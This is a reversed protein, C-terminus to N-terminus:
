RRAVTPTKALRRVHACLSVSPNRVLRSGRDDTVRFKSGVRTVSWPEGDGHLVVREQTLELTVNRTYNRQERQRHRDQAWVRLKQTLQTCLPPTDVETPWNKALQRPRLRDSEAWFDVANAVSRVMAHMKPSEHVLLSGDDVVFWENVFARRFELEDEARDFFMLLEAADYTKKLLQVRKIETQLASYTRTRITTNIMTGILIPQEIDRFLALLDLRYRATM